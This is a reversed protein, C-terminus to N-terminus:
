RCIEEVREASEVISRERCIEAYERCKTLVIWDQGNEGESWYDSLAELATVMARGKLDGSKASPMGVELLLPNIHEHSWCGDETLFMVRLSMDVYDVSLGEEIKRQFRKWEEIGTELIGYEGSPLHRVPVGRQFFVPIPIKIFRLEFRGKQLEDVRSKESEPMEDSWIQMIEGSHNLVIGAVGTGNYDKAAKGEIVLQKEITHSGQQKGAYEIANDCDRFFGCAIGEEDYVVYIYSEEPNKRITQWKAEEYRIREQIQQKTVADETEAELEQLSSLCATRTYGPMNWIITAKEFDTFSFGIEEYYEKVQKSPIIDIM